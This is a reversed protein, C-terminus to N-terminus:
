TTGTVLVAEAGDAPELWFPASETRRLLLAGHRDRIELHKALVRERDFLSGVTARFLRATGAIATAGPATQPPALEVGAIARRKRATRLKHVGLAAISALAVPTLVPFAISGGAILAAIMGW